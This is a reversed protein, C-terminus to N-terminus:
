LAAGKKVTQPTKKGNAKERNTGTQVNRVGTNSAMLKDLNVLIGYRRMIQFDSFFEYNAMIASITWSDANTVSLNKAGLSCPFILLMFFLIDRFKIM